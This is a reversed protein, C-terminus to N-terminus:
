VGAKALGKEVVLNEVPYNETPAASMPAMHADLEYDLPVILKVVKMSDTPAVM